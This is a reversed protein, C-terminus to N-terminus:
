SAEPIEVTLGTSEHLNHSTRRELLDVDQWAGQMEVLRLLTGVPRFGLETFLHNAALNEPLVYAHLTWFGMDDASNVLATLLRRGFGQGRFRAGVFVSVAAVGWLAPRHSAPELAAWGAIQGERSAAVLRHGPLYCADFQEWTSPEDFPARGQSEGLIASIDDWDTPLLPRIHM